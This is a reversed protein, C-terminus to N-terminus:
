VLGETTVVFYGTSDPLDAVKAEYHRVDGVRTAAVEEGVFGLRDYLNEVPANKATRVYTAVISKIGKVELLRKIQAMFENEAGRGMVRCSMLFSDIEAQKNRYRLILLAVLGQSGYKDSMCAVVADSDEASALEKLQTQTYRITTVNFQNSKGALQAARVVEESRLMHLDMAMGLNRLYDGLSGSARREDNRQVETRYMETKDLDERTVELSFFLENYSDVIVQPLQSTDSPFDIVTVEPCEARMQEREAPNDDLFVMADLGINLDKALQRMGQPKPNWGIIEAVFDDHKLVMAPHEFAQEVDDPNNKSIIALMVGRKRMAKLVFQADRYRSGEKNASLLIGEIGDEGIVGGWLTNDLDVALCKKPPEVTARVYRLTVKAIAQLGKTSWPMSGVYWMKRAYFAERGVREMAERIPLVYVSSGKSRLEHVGAELRRELDLASQWEGGWRCLSDGVDISSVFLPVCPHAKAFANLAVLWTDILERGREFAAWEEAYSDIHLIVVVSEPSFDYLGSNSDLLEQQWTDYGPSLYVDYSKRLMGALLDVTVNSLLAVRM